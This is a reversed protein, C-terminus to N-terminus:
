NLVDVIPEASSWDSLQDFFHTFAPTQNHSDIAEQNEWQEIMIFQNPKDVAQYLQYSRNGKEQRSSEILPQIAQLFDQRNDEKIFFTANITKM